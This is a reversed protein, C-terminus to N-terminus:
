QVNISIYRTTREGYGGVEYILEFKFKGNDKDYHATADVLGDSKARNVLSALDILAEETALITKIESM